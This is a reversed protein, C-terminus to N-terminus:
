YLHHTSSHLSSRPEVQRGGGCWRGVSESTLHVFRIMVVPDPNPSCVTCLQASKWIAKFVNLMDPKVKSGHFNLAM